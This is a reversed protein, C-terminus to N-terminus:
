FLIFDLWLLRRLRLIRLSRCDRFRLVLEQLTICPINGTCRMSSKMTMTTRPPSLRLPIILARKVKLKGFDEVSVVSSVNAKVVKDLSSGARELVAKVNQMMRHSKETM